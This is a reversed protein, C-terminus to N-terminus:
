APPETHAFDVRMTFVTDAVSAFNSNGPTPAVWWVEDQVPFTFRLDPGDGVEGCPYQSGGRLWFSWTWRSDQPSAHDWGLHLKFTTVESTLPVGLRNYPCSMAVPTRETVFDLNFRTEYSRITRSGYVALAHVQYPHSQPWLTGNPSVQVTLDGAHAENTTLQPSGVLLAGSEGLVTGDQALSVLASDTAKRADPPRARYIDHLFPRLYAEVWVMVFRPDRELSFQFTREASLDGSFSRVDWEGDNFLFSHSETDLSGPQSPSPSQALLAPVSRASAPQPLDIWSAGNATMEFALTPSPSVVEVVFLSPDIGKMPSGVALTGEWVGPAVQTAPESEFFGTGHDLGLVVAAGQSPGMDLAIHFRLPTSASWTVPADLRTAPLFAVSYRYESGDQFVHCPHNTNTLSSVTSGVGCQRAIIPESLEPDQPDVSWYLYNSASGLLYIREHASTAAGAPGPAALPLVVLLALLMRRAVNM